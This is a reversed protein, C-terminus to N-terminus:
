RLGASRQKWTAHGTARAAFKAARGAARLDPMASVAAPDAAKALAMAAAGDRDRLDANARTAAAGALADAVTLGNGTSDPATEPVFAAVLLERVADRAQKEDIAPPDADAHRHWAFWAISEMVFRAALDSDSAPRLAGSTIRMDLYGSLRKIDQRRIKRFFLDHLDPLDLASREILALLRRNASIFAYREDIIDVFEQRIDAPEPRALAAALVPFKAGLKAWKRLTDLTHGPVPTPLPIRLASITDPDMSYTMALEFLAEKSEVYRYLVAHSLGLRAGVDTMLARRYGKEIFVSCAAQAVDRVRNPPTRRVM